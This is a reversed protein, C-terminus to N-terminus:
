KNQTDEWELCIHVMDTQKMRPPGGGAINIQFDIQHPAISKKKRKAIGEGREGAEWRLKLKWKEWVSLCWIM